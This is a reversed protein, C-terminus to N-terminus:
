ERFDRHAEQGYKRGGRNPGKFYLYEPGPTGYRAPLLSVKGSIVKISGPQKMYLAIWNEM